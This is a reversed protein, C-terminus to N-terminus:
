VTEGPFETWVILMVLAAPTGGCGLNVELVKGRSGVSGHQLTCPPLPAPRSQKRPRRCTAAELVGRSMEWFIRLDDQCKVFPREGRQTLSPSEEPWVFLGAKPCSGNVRHEPMLVKAPLAQASSTEESRKGTKVTKIRKLNLHRIRHRPCIEATLSWDLM